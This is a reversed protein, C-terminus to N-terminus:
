RRVVGFHKFIEVGVGGQRKRLDRKKERDKEFLCM